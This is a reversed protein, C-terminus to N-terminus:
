RKDREMFINIFKLAFGDKTKEYEQPIVNMVRWRDKAEGNAIMDFGDTPIIMSKYEKM